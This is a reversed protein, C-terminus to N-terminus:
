RLLHAIALRTIKTKARGYAKIEAEVRLELVARAANQADELTARKQYYDAKIKRLSDMAANMREIMPPQQQSSTLNSM